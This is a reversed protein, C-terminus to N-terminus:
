LTVTGLRANIRQVVDDADSLAITMRGRHNSAAQARRRRMLDHRFLNYGAALDPLFGSLVTRAKRFDHERLNWRECNGSTWCNDQLVPANM